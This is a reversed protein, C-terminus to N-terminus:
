DKEKKSLTPAFLVAPVVMVQWRKGGLGDSVWAYALTTVLALAQAATPLLNIQYVSFRNLSKLWVSFYNLPQTVVCHFRDVIMLLKKLLSVPFVCVNVDFFRCLDALAYANEQNKGL